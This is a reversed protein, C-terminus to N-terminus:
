NQTPSIKQNIGSCGFFQTLSKSTYEISSFTGDAYDAILVGTTGFGVTSDVSM